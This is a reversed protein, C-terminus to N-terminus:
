MARGDGGAICPRSLAPDNFAAMLGDGSCGPAEVPPSADYRRSDRIVGHSGRGTDRQLRDVWCTPSCSAIERHGGPHERCVLKALTPPLAGCASMKRSKWRSMVPGPPEMRGARRGAVSRTTYRKIRILSRGAVAGAPQLSPSDDAGVSRDRSFGSGGIVMVVPPVRDLSTVSGDVGQATMEPMQIDLLVLDPRDAMV